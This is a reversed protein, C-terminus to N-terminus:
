DCLSIAKERSTTVDAHGESRNLRAAAAAAAQSCYRLKKKACVTTGHPDTRRFELHDSLQEILRMGYGGIREGGGFDARSTGALPVDKFSFGQGRDQVMIGVHDSFYELVVHFLAGHGQAHRLVNSCLEGVLIEVDNIDTPDVQLHELLARGLLRTIKIYALDEPLELSLRLIV